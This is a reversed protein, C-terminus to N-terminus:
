KNRQLGDIPLTLIQLLDPVVFHAEYGPKPTVQRYQGAPRKVQITLWGTRRATVFDKAPNDGIYVAEGAHIGLIELTKVYPLPSPKWNERKFEDSFVIAQFYDQIGLSEIKNQQTNLYGDSLLGLSYEGSLVELIQLADPYLRIEPKHARYVQLMEAILGPEPALGVRALAEDFINGRIGERYVQYLQAYFGDSVFDRRALHRAVQRFGSLIFQEEEYLTDDLDFVIAKLV